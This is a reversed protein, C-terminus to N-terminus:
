SEVRAAADARMQELEEETLIHDTLSTFVVGNLHDVEHCIARATLNKRM